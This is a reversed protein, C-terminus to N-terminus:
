ELENNKEEDETMTQRGLDSETMRKNNNKNM